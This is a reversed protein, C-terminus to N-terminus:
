IIIINYIEIDKLTQLIWYIHRPLVSSLALCAHDKAEHDGRGMVSTLKGNKRCKCGVVSKNISTHVRKQSKDRVGVLTAAHRAVHM